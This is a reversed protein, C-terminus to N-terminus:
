ISTIFILLVIFICVVRYLGFNLGTTNVRAYNKPSITSKRANKKEKKVLKRMKRSEEQYNLNWEAEEFEREEILISKIFLHIRKTDKKVEM